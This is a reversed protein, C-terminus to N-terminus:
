MISCMHRKSAKPKKTDMLVRLATEFVDNVKTGQLRSIRRSMCDFSLLQCVSLAGEFTWAICEICLVCITSLCGRCVKMASCEVFAAAGLDKALKVGEQMTVPHQHIRELDM